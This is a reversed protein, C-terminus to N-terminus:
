KPDLIVWNHPYDHPLPPYGWFAPTRTTRTPESLPKAVVLRCVMIQVLAPINNIQVKLVFKLSIKLLIWINENLFICKFINDAFHRGDQKPRLTNFTNKFAGWPLKQRQTSKSWHVALTSICCRFPSKPFFFGRSIYGSAKRLPKGANQPINKRTHSYPLWHPPPTIKHTIKRTKNFAKDEYKGWIYIYSSGAIQIINLEQLKQWEGEESSLIYIYTHSMKDPMM